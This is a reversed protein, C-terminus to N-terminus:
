IPLADHAGARALSERLRDSAYGQPIREQELRNASSRPALELFLAEEERTLETPLPNTDRPANSRFREFRHFTDRDMMVSRLGPLRARMAALIRFGHSDIDGWYLLNLGQLWPQAALTAAYGSGFIALSGKWEPLSLFLETSAFSTKNELILVNRLEPFAIRGLENAPLALDGIGRLYHESLSSDLFRLSRFLM